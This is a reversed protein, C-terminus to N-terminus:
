AFFKYLGTSGPAVKGSSNVVKDDIMTFARGQRGDTSYSVHIWNSAGKNRYEFILQNYPLIKELKVVLAFLESIDRNPYLHFDCAMGKNHDSGNSDNRLGSTITWNAGGGMQTCPGLEKYIPEMINECLAALNAVLHKKTYTQTGAGGAGSKGAPLTTDRLFHGQSHVFMGLTFHESLPFSAPFDTRGNIDALKETSLQKTTGSGGTPTYSEEPAGPLKNNNEYDSTSTM